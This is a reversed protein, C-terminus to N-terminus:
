RVQTRSVPASSSTSHSSGMERVSNQHLVPSAPSHPQYAPSRYGQNAPERDYPRFENRQEFGQRVLSLEHGDRLSWFWNGAPVSQTSVYAFRVDYRGDPRPTTKLALNIVFQSSVAHGNRVAPAAIMEDLSGRLLHDYRPTLDISPAVSTVRGHANVKVLVPLVQGKFHNLSMSQAQVPAAFIVILGLLSFMKM